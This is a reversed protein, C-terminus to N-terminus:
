SKYLSRTKKLKSLLNRADQRWLQLYEKIQELSASQSQISNKWFERGLVGLVMVLLTVTAVVLTLTLRKPRSKKEAPTARDVVQVIANDRVLDMRTLEALKGYLEFLSEQYKLERMLRQTELAFGPIKSTAIIVDGSNTKVGEHKELDGLKEKLGKLETEMRIVDYNNPTAQQRLVKIQVEKADITARLYALYEIVGKAQDKISVLNSEENYARFNNEVKTLNLKTQAMEKELFTLRAQAEDISFQQLMKDLEEVFANAMDAALQPNEDIVEISILGDKDASIKVSNGLAERITEIKPPTFSLWGSYYDRLNFRDIMKDSINTGSLIGVYLDGPSKLGLLTAIGQSALGGLNGGSGPSLNAGLFDL